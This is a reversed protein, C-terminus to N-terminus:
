FGNEISGEELPNVVWLTRSNEGHGGWDSGVVQAVRAVLGKDMQHGLYKYITVEYVEDGKYSM